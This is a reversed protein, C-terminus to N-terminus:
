PEDRCQPRGFQRASFNVRHQEIAEEGLAARLCTGVPCLAGQFLPPERVGGVARDGPMKDFEQPTTRADVRDQEITARKM